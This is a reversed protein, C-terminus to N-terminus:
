GMQYYSRKGNIKYHFVLESFNAWQQDMINYRGDKIKDSTLRFFIM